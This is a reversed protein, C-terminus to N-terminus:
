YVYRGQIEQKGESNTITKFTDPFDTNRSCEKASWCDEDNDDPKLCRGCVMIPKFEKPLRQTSLSQIGRNLAEEYVSHFFVDPVEDEKGIYPEFLEDEILSYNKNLWKIVTKIDELSFQKNSQQAAKYGAIFDNKCRDAHIINSLHVNNLGRWKQLYEEALKEVDVKDEFPNHLLPLDLEKAEKTLPYYAIVKDVNIFSSTYSYPLKNVVKTCNCLGVLHNDYMLDGKQIEAEEDILLLYTNTQLLKM